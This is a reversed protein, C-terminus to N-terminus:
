SMTFCISCLLWYDCTEIWVQIDSTLQWIKDDALSDFKFLVWHISKDGAIHGLLIKSSLKLTGQSLKPSENQSVLLAVPQVPDLKIYIHFYNGHFTREHLFFYFFLLVTCGFLHKCCNSLNKQIIKRWTSLPVNFICILCKGATGTGIIKRIEKPSNM